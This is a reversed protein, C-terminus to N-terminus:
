VPQSQLGSYLRRHVLKEIDERAPVVFPDHWQVWGELFRKAAIYLSQNTEIGQTLNDPDYSMSGNKFFM